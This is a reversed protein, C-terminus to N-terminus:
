QIIDYFYQSCTVGNVRVISVKAYLNQGNNLFGFGYSSPAEISIEIGGTTTYLSPFTIDGGSKMTDNMQGVMRTQIAYTGAPVTCTTSGNNFGQSYETITQSVVLTGQTAVPGVYGKYMSGSASPVTGNTQGTVVMNQLSIYGTSGQSTFTAMTFPATIGQCNTCGNGYIPPVVPAVYDNGGKNGCSALTLMLGLTAFAFTFLKAPFRLSNKNLREM